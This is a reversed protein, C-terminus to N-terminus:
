TSAMSTSTPTRTATSRSLERHRDPRRCGLRERDRQHAGDDREKSALARQRSLQPLLASLAQPKSELAALRNAEAERLQPDNQLARQYVALLDAAWAGNCGLVLGLLWWSHKM